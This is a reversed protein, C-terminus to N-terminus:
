TIKTNDTIFKDAISELQKYESRTLDPLDISVYPRVGVTETGVIQLNRKQGPIKKKPAEKAIDQADDEPLEPLDFDNDPKDALKFYNQVYFDGPGIKNKHINVM